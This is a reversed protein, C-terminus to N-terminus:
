ATANLYNFLQRKKLPALLISPLSLLSFNGVDVVCARVPFDSAIDLPSLLVSSFWFVLKLTLVELEVPDKIGFSVRLLPSDESSIRTVVLGRGCGFCVRGETVKSFLALASLDLWLMTAFMSFCGSALSLIFAFGIDPMSFAALM